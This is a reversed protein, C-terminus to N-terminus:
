VVELSFAQLVRQLHRHMQQRERANRLKEHRFSVCAGRMIQRTSGAVAASGILAVLGVVSSSLAAFYRLSSGPENDAQPHFVLHWLPYGTM